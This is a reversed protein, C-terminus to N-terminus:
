PSFPFPFLSPFFLLHFSPHSSLHFPFPPFSPFPSRAFTFFPPFHFFSSPPFPPFPFSLLAPLVFPNRLFPPHLTHSPFPPPSDFVHTTHLCPPHPPPPTFSSHSSITSPTFINRRWHIFVFCSLLIYVFPFPLFPFLLLSFFLSVLESSLSFFRSINSSSYGGM